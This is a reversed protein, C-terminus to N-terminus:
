PCSAPETVRTGSRSEVFCPKLSNRSPRQNPNASRETPESACTWMAIECPERLVEGLGLPEVLLVELDDVVPDSRVTLRRRVRSRRRSEEADPPEDRDLAVEDEQASERLRARLHRVDCEVDRSAARERRRQLRVRTLEPTSSATRKRPKTEGTWRAISSAATTTTGDSPSPNPMTASSAISRARGTIALATPPSGSITASPSVPSTTGGPPRRPARRPSRRARPRDGALPPSPARRGRARARALERGLAADLADLLEVRTRELGRRRLARPATAARAGLSAALAFAALLALLFDWPARYRTTGAFVMAALTNYALLLVALVVFRPPAVFFGVIALVYLAIVFAPEVTEARWARRARQRERGVRAARPQWLM